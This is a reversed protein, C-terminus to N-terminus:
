SCSVVEEPRGIHEFDILLGVVDRNDDDPAKPCKVCVWWEKVVRIQANVFRRPPFWTPEKSTWRVETVQERRKVRQFRKCRACFRKDPEHWQREGPNMENLLRM